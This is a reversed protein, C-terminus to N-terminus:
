DFPVYPQPGWVGRYFEFPFYPYGQYPPAPEEYAHGSEGDDDTPEDSADGYDTHDDYEPLEEYSPEFTDEEVDEETPTDESEESANLTDLAFAPLRSHDVSPPPTTVEPATEEQEAQTKSFASTSPLEPEPM